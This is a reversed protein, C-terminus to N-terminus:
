YQVGERCGGEPSICRDPYIKAKRAAIEVAEAARPTSHMMALGALMGGCNGVPVTNSFNFPGGLFWSGQANRLYGTLMRDLYDQLAARDETPLEGYLIDYATAMGSVSMM